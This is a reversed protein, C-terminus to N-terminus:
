FICPEPADHHFRSIRLQMSPSKGGRCQQHHALRRKGLLAHRQHQAIRGVLIDSLEGIRNVVAGPNGRRQLIGAEIDDIGTM